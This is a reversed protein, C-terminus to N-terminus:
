RLRLVKNSPQYQQNKIGVSVLSLAFCTILIGAIPYVWERTRM